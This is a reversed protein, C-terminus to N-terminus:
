PNSTHHIVGFSYVLDYNGRPLQSALVEANVNHFDGKLGFLKFRQQALDM